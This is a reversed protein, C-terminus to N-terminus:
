ILPQIAEWYKITMPGSGNWNKAVQEYTKGKVVQGRGNHTAFYLFVEKAKTFDYMDTLTYNSGTLNNFHDLRCKRIQLGGYAEENLNHALTDNHTEYRFIAKILPNYDSIYIPRSIIPSSTVLYFTKINPCFAVPLNMFSLFVM